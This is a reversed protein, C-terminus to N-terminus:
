LVNRMSLVIVDPEGLRTGVLDPKNHRALPSATAQNGCALRMAELWLHQSCLVSSTPLLSHSTIPRMALSISPILLCHSRDSSHNDRSRETREDRSLLVHSSPHLYRRECHVMDWWKREHVHHHCHRSCVRIENKIVYVLSKGLNLSDPQKTKLGSCCQGPFLRVSSSSAMESSSAQM